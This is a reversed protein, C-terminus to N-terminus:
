KQELVSSATRAKWDCCPSTDSPMAPLPVTLAKSLSSGRVPSVAAGSSVAEVTPAAVELPKESKREPVSSFPSM